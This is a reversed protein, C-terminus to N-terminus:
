YVMLEKLPQGDIVRNWGFRNLDITQYKNDVILETLAKGVAPSMQIGHGSFGTAWFLNDYYPDRGIVANQDLRNYEYLGAWSNKVKISEFAKVRNALHPWVNSEFYSYDVDM